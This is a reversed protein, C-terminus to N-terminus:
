YIRFKRPLEKHLLDEKKGLGVMNSQGGMLILASQPLVSSETNNRLDESHQIPNQQIQQGSLNNNSDLPKITQCDYFLCVLLALFLRLIKM